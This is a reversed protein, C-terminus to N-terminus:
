KLEQWMEKGTSDFYHLGIPTIPNSNTGLTLLGATGNWDKLSGLYDRICVTDVSSKCSEMAEKILYVADYSTALYAINTPPLQKYASIYTKIFTATKTSTPDTFADTTFINPNNLLGGTQTNIAPSVSQAGAIIPYKDLFGLEKMQKYFTVSAGAGQSAFMIADPKEKNMKLIYSRLDNVDSNFADDSVVQGGLKTFEALFAKYVGVPFDKNEYLAAVKRYGKSYAYDASKATYFESSPSNRFIYQGANTVAPSSTISAIIVVKAKEVIPAIALTETSCHGGLIVSVKNVNILKSAVTAATTGDCKGDEVILNVKKGLIGGSQNIENQAILASQMAPEGYSAASGTLPSILGINIEGNQVPRLSVVLILIVVVVIGIAWWIKKNM